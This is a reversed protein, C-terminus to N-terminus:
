GNYAEVRHRTHEPAEETKEVPTDGTTRAIDPRRMRIETFDREEREFVGKRAIPLGLNHVLAITKAYADVSWVATFRRFTLRSERLANDRIRVSGESSGLRQERGLKFSPVLLTQRWIPSAGELEYTKRNWGVTLVPVVPVQRELAQPIWASMHERAVELATLRHVHGDVTSAYLM